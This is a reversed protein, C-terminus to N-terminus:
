QPAICASVTPLARSAACLPLLQRFLAWTFPWSRQTLAPRGPLHGPRPCYIFLGLQSDSLPPSTAPVKYVCFAKRPNNKSKVVERTGWTVKGFQDSLFLPQIEPNPLDGPSPFPWRSWFEQRSFEMPLPAQHAITWSSM